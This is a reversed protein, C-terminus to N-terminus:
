INFEFVFQLLSDSLRKQWLFKLVKQDKQDTSETHAFSQLILPYSKTEM